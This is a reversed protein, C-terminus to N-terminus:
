KQRKIYPPLELIIENLTNKLAQKEKINYYRGKGSSSLAKLSSEVVPTKINLGIVNIKLNEKDQLLKNIKNQDFNSCNGLNNTIIILEKPGTVNKLDEDIAKILSMEFPVEGSHDLKKLNNVLKDYNSYGVYSIIESNNCKNFTIIGDNHGYIRLGVPIYFPLDKIYNPLWNNLLDLNNEPEEKSLKTDMKKSYDVLFHINKALYYLDVDEDSQAKSV